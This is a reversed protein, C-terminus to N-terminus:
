WTIGYPTSIGCVISSTCAATSIAALCRTGIKGRAPVDGFADGEVKWDGYGGEFDAILKDESVGQSSFFCLFGIAVGVRLSALDVISVSNVQGPAVEVTLVLGLVATLAVTLGFRRAALITRLRM